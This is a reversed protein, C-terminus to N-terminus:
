IISSELSLDENHRVLQAFVRDGSIKIINFEKEGFLSIYDYYESKRILADDM